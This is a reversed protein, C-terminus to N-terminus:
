SRSRGLEARAREAAPALVLLACTWTPDDQDLEFSGAELEAGQAQLWDAALRVQAPEGDVTVAERDLDRFTYGLGTAGSARELLAAAREEITPRSGDPRYGRAELWRVAAARRKYTRSSAHTLVTYGSGDANVHLGLPGSM